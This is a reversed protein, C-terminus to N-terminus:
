NFIKQILLMYAATGAAMSLMMNRKWVHLAATVAIALLEPAGHNGGLFDVNRVCYVCLLAFVAAPLARGLYKVYAPVGREPSFFFFTLFRTAMTAAACILVTAAQEFYTMDTM